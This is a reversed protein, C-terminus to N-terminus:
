DRRAVHELARLSNYIDSKATQIKKEDMLNLLDLLKNTENELDELSGSNDLRIDCAAIKQTAPWQWSEIQAIKQDSWGRTEKLRKHRIADPCEIGISTVGSSLQRNWGCEFYLPIEVARWLKADNKEHELFQEIEGLVIAHVCEEWAAKFKPDERMKDMLLNKNINGKETLLDNGFRQCLWKIHTSNAEYIKTVLADANLVSFGNKELMASFASKGCGPNGTVVLRKSLGASQFPVTFFNEEPLSSFAMYKHTAPHCFTIRWAHLLQRPAMNSIKASSYLKDGLIPFGLSSLHVRIQHTRGTYIRVALISFNRQEDWWVRRWTTRASKGGKAHPIISMKIKSVPDRGIPLCSEGSQAPVGHVIAIYEKYVKHRAFDECLKLRSKENLAIVILGSTDKDLRHVIGPRLGGQNALQPYRALLREVLTADACSACPHVTLGPSKNIVVIDEDEWLVDIEGMAPRLSTEPVNLELRIKQGARVRGSVHTVIKGDLQCKGGLIAKKINERSTATTMSCLIKDLREGNEYKETIKELLM